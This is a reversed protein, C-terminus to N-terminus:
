ATEASGPLASIAARIMQAVIVVLSLALPTALYLGFAATVSMGTLLVGCLAACAGAISGVILSAAIM